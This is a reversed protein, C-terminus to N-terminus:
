RIKKDFAKAKKIIEKKNANAIGLGAGLLPMGVCAGVLGGVLGQKFNQKIQEKEKRKLNTQIM